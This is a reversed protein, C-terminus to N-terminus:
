DEQHISARGEKGKICEAVKEKHGVCGRIKKQMNQSHLLDEKASCRAGSSFDAAYKQSVRWKHASNHTFTSGKCANDSDSDLAAM